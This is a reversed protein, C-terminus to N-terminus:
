KEGGIDEVTDLRIRVRAYHTSWGHVIDCALLSDRVALNPEFIIYEQVERGDKILVSHTLGCYSLFAHITIRRNSSQDKPTKAEKSCTNHPDLNM